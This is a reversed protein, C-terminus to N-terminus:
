NQKRRLASQVIKDVLEPFEVGAARAARPLLSGKTMGPITNVELLYIQEDKWIMDVRGFDKCGLSVYAELAVEQARVYDEKSLSAPVIYECMGKTYKTKYDYLDGRPIIEIIPLAKPEPDDLIGVTIERGKIYDEVIAYERDYRFAGELASNLESEKMVISVGLTSGSRGPKVVLPPLIEFHPEEGKRVVEYLPQKLGDSEWFKRTSVKDMAIASSLVGSGTYPIDLIELLGQITGDEGGPGHLAIFVLDVDEKELSCLKRKERPDLGFVGYGAKKLAEKVAEGSKLSIEREGSRGGELVCVRAKM